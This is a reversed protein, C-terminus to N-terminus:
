PASAFLTRLRAGNPLKASSCTPCSTIVHLHCSSTSMDQRSKVHTRILERKKANTQGRLQHNQAFENQCPFLMLYRFKKSWSRQLANSIKQSRSLCQLDNFYQVIKYSVQHIKRLQWLERLSSRDSITFGGASSRLEAFNGLMSTLFWPVPVIHTCYPYMSTFNYIYIHPYIVFQRYIYNKIPKLGNLKEDRIITISTCNLVQVRGM